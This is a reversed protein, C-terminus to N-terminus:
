QKAEWDAREAIGRMLEAAARFTGYRDELANAAAELHYSNFGGGVFRGLCEAVTPPEPEKEYHLTIAVAGRDEFCQALHFKFGDPKNGPENALKTLKTRISYRDDM